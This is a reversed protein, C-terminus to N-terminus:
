RVLVSARNGSVLAGPSSGPWRFHVCTSSPSDCGQDQLQACGLQLLRLWLCGWLGPQPSPEPPPRPQVSVDVNTAHQAELAPPRLSRGAETLLFCM